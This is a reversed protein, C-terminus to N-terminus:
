AAARQQRRDWNFETESMPKKPDPKWVAKKKHKGLARAMERVHTAISGCCSGIYNVGLKKAKRAFDGMEYRTLQTPDLKDPFAPTGTFWPVKDSCRFAVPQAALYGDTAARMEEIIPYMREPDRM